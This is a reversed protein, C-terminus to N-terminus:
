YDFDHNDTIRKIIEDYMPSDIFYRTRNVKSNKRSVKRKELFTMFEYGNFREEAKEARFLMPSTKPNYM